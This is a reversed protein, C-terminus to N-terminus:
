LFRQYDIYYYIVINEKQKQENSKQSKVFKYASDRSNAESNSNKTYTKTVIYSNDVYFFCWDRSYVRFSTRWGFPSFAIKM